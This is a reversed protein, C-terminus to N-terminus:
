NSLCDCLLEQSKRAGKLFHSAAKPRLKKVLLLPNSGGANGFLSFSTRCTGPTM